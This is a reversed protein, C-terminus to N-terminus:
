GDRRHAPHSGRHTRRTRRACLVAMSRAVMGRDVPPLPQTTWPWIDLVEKKLLEIEKIDSEIQTANGNSEKHLENLASLMEDLLGALRTGVADFNEAPAKSMEAWVERYAAKAQQPWDATAQGPQALQAAFRELADRCRETDAVEPM